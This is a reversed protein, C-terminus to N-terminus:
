ITSQFKLLPCIPFLSSKMADTQIISVKGISYIVIPHPENQIIKKIKRIGHRKQWNLQFIKQKMDSKNLEKRGLEKRGLEKRGLEKRGLEKRGLEKRGLEKEM